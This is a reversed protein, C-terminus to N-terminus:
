DDVTGRCVDNNTIYESRVSHYVFLRQSYVTPMFQKNYIRVMYRKDCYQRHDILSRWPIDTVWILWNTFKVNFSLSSLSVTADLLFLM